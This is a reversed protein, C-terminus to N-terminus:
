PTSSTTAAPKAVVRVALLNLTSPDSDKCDRAQVNLHDDTRLDSFLARGHRFVKTATGVQVAEDKGVFTKAQRNAGTVHMVFSNDSTSVLKGTLIFAVRPKCNPGTQSPKKPPAGAAFSAASAATVVALAFATLKPVPTPMQHVHDTLESPSRM